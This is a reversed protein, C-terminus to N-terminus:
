SQPDGDWGVTALAWGQKALRAQPFNWIFVNTAQLRKVRLIVSAGAQAQIQPLSLDPIFQTM